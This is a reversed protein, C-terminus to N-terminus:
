FNREVRLLGTWNGETERTVLTSTRRVDQSLRTYTAEVGIEFDKTPLWAVQKGVMWMKADSFGNNARTTADATTTGKVAGYSGYATSKITPKWWHVAQTGVSWSKSTEIGNPGMVFSPFATVVYGGVNRAWTVTKTSGWQTTYDTMGDAYAGTFWIADKSGLWPLNLKTGAGAAWISKQQDYTALANVANARGVAGMVQVDGWGQELRVNGVVYPINNFSSKPENTGTLGSLNTPTMETDSPNQLAVTASLGGGLIATYSIQRAGNAFSAWYASGYTMSPMYAFNDQAQGFTFGAFRIYARELQTSVSKSGFADPGAKDLVGSGRSFRIQAASQVTGFETPTRHDFSIRGRAETGWTQSANKAIAIPNNGATSGPNGYIAQPSVYGFDARVRGGIKLCSDTGPVVFFGDGYTSCVKVYQDTEKTNKSQPLEAATAATSLAILAATFINKM